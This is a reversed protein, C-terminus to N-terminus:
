RWNPFWMWVNYFEKTPLPAGSIIPYFGVFMAASIAMTATALHRWRDRRNWLADLAFALIGMLFAGPLLYHYYFQIPKGNVVWIGLTGAYLLVLTLVDRRGRFLSVWAGWVLAFLGSIMSFPNGLMVIGHQHGDINEFQYWIPRWDVMWQYWLSRYPHLKKVSDQLAIMHRHQEIFGWPSLPRSSYFMAPLYTAWYVTLPLLGLWFAAEALSIGPIPGAGKRGVFKWGSERVRLALFWLGPVMLAPASSWKAGLSLGLAVGAAALRGRAAGSTPAHLAAAFQWLAIMCLSAEVMDLMSIRSQVFWMFNTALLVTATITARRRGSLHWVFRAFAFLGFVGFLLPGIRWAIPRDGIISIFGAIVEKAFMPHEGNAPILELLKLAAPVYHIEDFYYRNPEALRFLALALFLGTVILSWGIPDRENRSANPM